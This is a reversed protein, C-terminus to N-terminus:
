PLLAWAALLMVPPVTLLGLFTSLGVTATITDQAVGYRQAFLLTNAGAPLCALVVVVVLPLGGLGMLWGAGAVLLPMLLNKALTLGLARREWPAHFLPEGAGEPQVPGFGHMGGMDHAGNM